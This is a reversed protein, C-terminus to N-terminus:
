QHTIQIEMANREYFYIGTYPMIEFYDGSWHIHGSMQLTDPVSKTLNYLSAPVGAISHEGVLKQFARFFLTGPM